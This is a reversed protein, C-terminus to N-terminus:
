IATLNLGRQTLDHPRVFMPGLEKLSSLQDIDAVCSHSEHGPSTQIDWACSKPIFVLKDKKEKLREEEPHRGLVAFSELFSLTKKSAM